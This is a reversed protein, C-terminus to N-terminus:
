AAAASVSEWTIGYKRPKLTRGADPMPPFSTLFGKSLAWKRGISKLIIIGEATFYADRSAQNQAWWEEFMQNSLSDAQLTIMSKPPVFVFGGSLKGDVGMLVEASDIPDVSFIDDTSFGQVVQPVPFIGAIALTLIANASTITNPM